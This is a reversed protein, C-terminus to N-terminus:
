QCFLLNDRFQGLSCVNMVFIVIKLAYSSLFLGVADIKKKKKEKKPLSMYPTQRKM